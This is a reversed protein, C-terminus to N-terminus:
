LEPKHGSFNAKARYIARLCLHVSPNAALGYTVGENELRLCARLSSCTNTIQYFIAVLLRHGGLGRPLLPPNGHITEDQCDKGRRHEDDGHGIENGDQPLATRALSELLSCGGPWAATGQLANGVMNVTQLLASVRQQCRNYGMPGDRPGVPVLRPGARRRPAKQWGFAVIVGSRWTTRWM